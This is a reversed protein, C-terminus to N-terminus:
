NVAPYEVPGAAMPSGPSEPYGQGKLELGKRHLAEVVAQERHALIAIRGPDTTNRQEDEILALKAILERITAQGLNDDGPTPRNMTQTTEM